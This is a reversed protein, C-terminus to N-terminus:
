YKSLEGIQPGGTNTINMRPTRNQRQQQQGMVLLRELCELILVQFRGGYPARQDSMNRQHHPHHHQFFTSLDSVFLFSSPVTVKECKKRKYVTSDHLNKDIFLISWEGDLTLAAGRWPTTEGRHICGVTVM